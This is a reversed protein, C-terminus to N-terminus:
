TFTKSNKSFDNRYDINVGVQSLAKKLTFERAAIM